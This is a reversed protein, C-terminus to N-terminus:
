IHKCNDKPMACVKQTIMLHRESISKAIKSTQTPQDPYYSSYNKKLTPLAWFRHKAEVPGNVGNHTEKHSVRIIIGMTSLTAVKQMLMTQSAPWQNEMVVKSLLM